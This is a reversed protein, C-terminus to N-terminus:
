YIKIFPYKVKLQEFCDGLYGRVVTIDDIGADVCADILTDIIRKNNVRVLPKPCSLTIPMMRSGMGAAIFIARKVRYPELAALGSETIKGNSILGDAQLQRIVTSDAASVSSDPQAASSLIEFQEKTLM